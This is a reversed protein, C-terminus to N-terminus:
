PTPGSSRTPQDPRWRAAGWDEDSLELLRALQEPPIHDAVDDGRALAAAGMVHGLRLCTRSDKNALRGAIFGAAFSDGAGVADVLEGDFSLAPEFCTGAADIVTAGRAGHKIVLEAPHPLRERIQEPDGSGWLATAEDDGVLVLDALGALRTLAPVADRDRWLTPRWNIDLSIPVERPRSELLTEILSFCDPSLAPTIGTLHLLDAGAIWAPDFWEPSMASAASGRRYYSVTTAGNKFEKFYVGTPRVPDTEVHRVDVGAAGVYRLLYEGFGDDGVRSLWSSSIGLRALGMAVNSEAGGVARGFREADVLANRELPVLMLM